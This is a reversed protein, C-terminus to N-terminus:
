ECIPDCQWTQTTCRTLGGCNNNGWCSMTGNCEKTCEGVTVRVAECGECDNRILTWYETYFGFDIFCNAQADEQAIPGAGLFSIAVVLLAVRTVFRRSLM